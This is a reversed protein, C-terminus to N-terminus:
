ISRAREVQGPLPTRARDAQDRPVPTHARETQERAVAQEKALAQRAMDADFQATEEYAWKQYRMTASDSRPAHIPPKGETEGLLMSARALRQSEQSRFCKKITFVGTEIRANPDKTIPRTVGQFSSRRYNALLRESERELGLVQQELLRRDTQADIRGAERLMTSLARTYGEADLREKWGELEDGPIVGSRELLGAYLAERRVREYRAVWRVLRGKREEDLEGSRVLIELYHRASFDRDLEALDAAVDMGSRWGLQVLLKGAVLDHFTVSM